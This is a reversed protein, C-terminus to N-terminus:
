ISVPAAIPYEETTSGTNVLLIDDIIKFSISTGKNPLQKLV